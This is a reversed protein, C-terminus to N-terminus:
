ALDAFHREVRAFYRSGSLFLLVASAAGIGLLAWPFATTGLLAARFGTVVGVMPNLAYAYRAPSPVVSVGYIVPSVFLLLQILFPTVYRVDRYRSSLAALWLGAGATTLFMVIVLLPLFVVDITPARRYAAMLAALVGFAMLFDVLVAFLPSLPVFIRPFYVKSLMGSSGIVSGSAANVGNSFYTWAVLASFSFLAYPVGESDVGALRGFFITFVVMTLLPQAIAWGLGLVTQVYRVVIDRKVLYYLLDRHAVMERVDIWRRKSGAEIVTVAREAPVPEGLRPRPADVGVTV